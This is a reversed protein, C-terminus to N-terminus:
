VPKRRAIGFTGGAIGAIILFALGAAHNLPMGPPVTIPGQNAPNAPMSFSEGTYGDRTVSLVQNIGISEFTSVEGNPWEITLIDVQTADGLGFYAEAPEQGIFSTGATILRSMTVDGATVRVVAGISWHNPGDQRPRVAVSGARPETPDPFNRWLRLLSESIFPPTAAVTQLLDLRGDRNYDIAILCSGWFSDFFGVEESVPEFVTPSGGRNLFFASHDTTHPARFLGNTAALDLLGDNNADLFTCGWSWGTANVARDVAIDTFAPVSGVTDNRLLRNIDPTNTIFIDMDTDNDYDSVAVGMENGSAIIGYTGAEDIFTNDGQNSWLRDNAFFDVSVYIDQRGDGNFDHFVAQWAKDSTGGIGSSVSIDEFTGDGSNLFFKTQARWGTIILDLFGDGNIDGAAMGGLQGYGTYSLEGAQATTDEFVGEETQRYLTLRGECFTDVREENLECDGAVVLDLRHDGDYDFWLAARHSDMAAVGLPGAREEFRGGGLNVYLQDPVGDITPVFLDIDGDVDFDAASVGAGIGLAMAYPGIGSESSV